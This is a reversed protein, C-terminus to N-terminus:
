SVKRYQDALVNAAAQKLIKLGSELEEPQITLPCLCKVVQGESGSTEIVLNQEFCARSIASAVDGNPCELGQMMGRGKLKLTEGPVSRAIDLLGQRLQASVSQVHLCLQDDQWFHELAASATVFAHNNGRFTGNHEGPKWQDLEPRFLTVALPLGYGSLSKSLTVIDPKIGAPEFSFFSGTRGCGAQIDDVILLIDRRKCIDAITRLWANSAVNLGGEGQVTEVIVAAPHDVGSSPDDIMQELYSATDLDDEFYQDFPMPTTGTLPLGAAGRHHSNGTAAM